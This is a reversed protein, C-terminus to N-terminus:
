WGNNWCKGARTSSSTATITPPTTTIAYTSICGGCCSDLSLLPKSATTTISCRAM